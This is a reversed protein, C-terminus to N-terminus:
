KYIENEKLKKRNSKIKIKKITTKKKVKIFEKFQNKKETEDKLM